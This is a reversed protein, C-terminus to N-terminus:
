SVAQASSGGAAHPAALNHPKLFAATDYYTQFRRVQDDEWELISVGRYEIPNGDPLAGRAEWELVTLDDRELIRTFESRIQQFAACYNLWFQHARDRGAVPTSAALNELECNESFLGTLADVQHNTEMAQLTRIFKETRQQAM